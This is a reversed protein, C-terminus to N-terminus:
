NVKTYDREFRILESNYDITVKFYKLASGGIAGKVEKDMSAIMGKSWNEDRRVAFLVPGVEYGGINVVPVEIVDGALDAKPYFNWDPHLERWKQCVSAAIFSGGITKKDTNMQRKGDESLVMTAGTDFLVDISEGDIEITMRPHGFIKDQNENKKFGIEQVNPYGLQSNDLPTNIWIKKNPYDFTWSKNMFFGQGLFAEMEPQVETMLKLEKEMPPVMLYSEEIRMFPNRLVFNSVPCPRPFKSDPVLDSFLIYKIPMIGKLLGTKLKSKINGKNETDPMLMSLGGGTDGFGLISDSDGIPIKIYFREGEIFNSPILYASAGNNEDYKLFCKSGLVKKDLQQITFFYTAFIFIFVGISLAVYKLIKKM